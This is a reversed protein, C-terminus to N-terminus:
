GSHVVPRSGAGVRPSVGGSALPPKGRGRRGVNMGSGWSTPHRFPGFPRWAAMEVTGGDNRRELFRGWRYHALIRPWREVDAAVNLVREVPARIVVEDVTVM